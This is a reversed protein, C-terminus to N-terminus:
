PRVSRTLASELAAKSAAPRSESPSGAAENKKPARFWLEGRREAFGETKLTSLTGRVSNEKFKTKAIIDSTLIGDKADEILAKITPKVTGSAARALVNQVAKDLEPTPGVPAIEDFPHATAISGLLTPTSLYSLIDRQIEDRASARGAEFAEQLLKRIDGAARSFITDLPNDTMIRCGSEAVGSIVSNTAPSL